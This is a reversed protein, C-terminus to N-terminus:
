GSRTEMALVAMLWVPCAISPTAIMMATYRVMLREIEPNMFQYLARIARRHPPQALVQKGTPHAGQRGHQQDSQQQFRNKLDDVPREDVRDPPGIGPGAVVRAAGAPSRFLVRRFELRVQIEYAT